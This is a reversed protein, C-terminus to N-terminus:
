GIRFTYMVVDQTEDGSVSKYLNKAPINDNETLVWAEKCGLDQAVQLMTNMLSKGIGQARHTEAVGVENIWFEPNPKDPHVYHVGSVFGVIEDNETAVVIHHRSDNLFEIAHKLDIPDDFIDTSTKALWSEDEANLVRINITM